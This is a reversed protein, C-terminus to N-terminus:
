ILDLGPLGRPTLSSTAFGPKLPRHDGLTLQIKMRAIKGSCEGNCVRLAPKIGTMSKAVWVM